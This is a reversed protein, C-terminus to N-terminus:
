SPSNRSPKWWKAQGSAAPPWSSWMWTPMAAPSRSCCPRAPGSPDQYATPEERPWPFFTDILRVRTVLPQEPKLREAYATIARKVPWLFSLGVPVTAGSADALEAVTDGIRYGGAPKVSRVTYEGALHFPVMIRHTFANEPVTGVCDGASLREGPAVTPTFAWVRDRPLADLYIGRELFFGAAEALQPLPNQLGDFVQGLLGPGLEVSLLENTFEVQDGVTIGKTLEFVQVQCVDGRIRIIECKLRKGDTIVYGVENMSVTGAFRVGIMNGNVAIVSGTTANM